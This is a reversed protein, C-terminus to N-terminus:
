CYSVASTPASTARTRPNTHPQNRGCQNRGCQLATHNRGCQPWLQRDTRKHGYEVSPRKGIGTRGTPCGRALQTPSRGNPGHQGSSLQQQHANAVTQACGRHRVAAARDAINVTQEASQPVRKECGRGVGARLKCCLVAPLMVLVAQFRSVNAIAPQSAPTMMMMM